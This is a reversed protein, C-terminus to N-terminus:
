VLIPNLCGSRSGLTVVIGPLHEHQAGISVVCFVFCFIWLYFGTWNAGDFCLGRHYEITLAFHRRWCPLGRMSRCKREPQATSPRTPTRTTTAAAPPAAASTPWARNWTAALRPSTTPTLALARPPGWPCPWLRARPGGRPPLIARLPALSPAMELPILWGVQGANKRVCKTSRGRVRM